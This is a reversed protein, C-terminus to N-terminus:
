NQKSLPYISQCFLTFQNRLYEAFQVEFDPDLKDEQLGHVAAVVKAKGLDSM